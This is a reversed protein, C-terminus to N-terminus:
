DFHCAFVRDSTAATTAYAGYLWRGDAQPRPVGLWDQPYAQSVLLSTSFAFASLISPDATSAQLGNVWENRLRLDADVVDPIGTANLTNTLEQRTSSILNDRGRLTNDAGPSGGNFVIDDGNHANDWSLNLYLHATSDQLALAAGGNRVITNSVLTIFNRDHNGNPGACSNSCAGDVLVVAPGHNATMVNNIVYGAHTQDLFVASGARGARNGVFWNNQVKILANTTDSSTGHQAILGGGVGFHSGNGVTDNGIFENHDVITNMGVAAGAGHPLSTEYIRNNRIINFAVDAIGATQSGITGFGDNSGDRTIPNGSNAGIALGGGHHWGSNEEILNNTVTISPHRGGGIRIGGTANSSGPNTTTGNHHVHCNRVVVVENDPPASDWLSINIGRRQSGSIEMGDITLQSPSQAAILDTSPSAPVLRSPSTAPARSAYGPAFGGALVISRRTGFSINEVYDGSTVCLVARASSGAAALAANVSGYPANISGDGNSGSAVYRMVWGAPPTGTDCGYLNLGGTAIGAGPIYAGALVAPGFASLLLTMPLRM